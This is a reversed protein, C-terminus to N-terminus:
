KEKLISPVLKFFIGLIIGGILSMFINLKKNPTYPSKTMEPLDLISIIKKNPSIGIKKNFIFFSELCIELTHISIEPNTHYFSIEYIGTNKKILKIRNLKLSTETTKESKYKSTLSKIIHKRLTISEILSLIFEEMNNQNGLKLFGPYSPLNNGSPSEIFFTSKAMYTNPIIYNYGMAVVLLVLTTLLIIKKGEFIKQIYNEISKEAM